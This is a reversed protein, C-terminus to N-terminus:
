KQVFWKQWGEVQTLDSHLSPHRCLLLLPLFHLAQLVTPDVLSGGSLTAYPSPDGIRLLPNRFTVPRPGSLVCTRASFRAFRLFRGLRFINGELIPAPRPPLTPAWGFQVSLLEKGLVM